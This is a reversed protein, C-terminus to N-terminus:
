FTRYLSTVKGLIVASNGDIPAYNKNEPILWVQHETRKFRKVTAEDGLLAVVIDGNDANSQKQVIVFDGELIGADLMSDGKVKLAFFDNTPFGPACPIYGDIDETALIPAGARVTGLIPIGNQPRSAITISRKRGSGTNILGASELKKLHAHVSSPSSLSCASGIERVSPSVSNASIYRTIFDYIQLQKASLGDM